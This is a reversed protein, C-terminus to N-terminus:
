PITLQLPVGSIVSGYIRKQIASIELAYTGSIAQNSQGISLMLNETVTCNAEMSIQTQNFRAVIGEPLEPPGRLMLEAWGPTHDETGVILLLDAKETSHITVTINLSEGKSVVIEDPDLSLWFPIPGPEPLITANEPPQPRQPPEGIQSPKIPIVKFGETAFAILMGSTIVAALVIITLLKTYKM